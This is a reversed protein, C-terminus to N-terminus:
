VRVMVLLERLVRFLLIARYKQAPHQSSRPICHPTRPAPPSSHSAAANNTTPCKQPPPTTNDPTRTCLHDRKPATPSHQTPHIRSQCHRPTFVTILSPRRSQCAPVAVDRQCGPILWRRDCLIVASFITRGSKWAWRIWGTLTVNSCILSLYVAADMVGKTAVIM